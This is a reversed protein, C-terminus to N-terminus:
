RLCKAMQLGEKLLQQIRGLSISRFRIDRCHTPGMRRRQMSKQMLATLARDKLFLERFPVLMTESQIAGIGPRIGSPRDALVEIFDKGHETLMLLRRDARLKIFM